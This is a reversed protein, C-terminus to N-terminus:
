LRSWSCASVLPRITRHRFEKCPLTGISQSLSPTGKSCPWLTSRPTSSHWNSDPCGFSCILTSSSESSYTCTSCHGSWSFPSCLTPLEQWSITLCHTRGRIRAVIYYNTFYSNSVLRLRFFGSMTSFRLMSYKLITSLSLLMPGMLTNTKTNLM